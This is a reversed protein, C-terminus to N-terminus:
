EGSEALPWYGLEELKPKVETVMAQALDPPIGAPEGWRQLVDICDGISTIAVRGLVRTVSESLALEEIPVNYLHEYQSSGLSNESM